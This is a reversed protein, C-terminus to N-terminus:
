MFNTKLHTIEYWFWLVSSQGIYFPASLRVLWGSSTALEHLPALRLFIPVFFDRSLLNHSRNHNLKQDVSRLSTFCIDTKSKAPPWSPQIRTINKKPMLAPAFLVLFVSVSFYFLRNWYGVMKASRAKDIFSKNNPKSTNKGQSILAPFALSGSLDM